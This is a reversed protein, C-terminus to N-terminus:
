RDRLLRDLWGGKRAVSRGLHDLDVEPVEPPPESATRAPLETELLVHLGTVLQELSPRLPRRVADLWQTASLFYALGGSPTVNEIRFTVIRKGTSSAREVERLVEGSADAHRSFILVLVRSSDLGTVIASSWTQGPTIDRPAIWCRLGVTELAVCVERAVAADRSSHSIFVDQGGAAQTTAERVSPSATPKWWDRQNGHADM